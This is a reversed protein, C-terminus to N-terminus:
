RNRCERYLQYPFHPDLRPGHFLRVRGPRDTLRGQRMLKAAANLLCIGPGVQEVPAAHEHLLPRVIESGLWPM